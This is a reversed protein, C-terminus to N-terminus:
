RWARCVDEAVEGLVRELDDSLSGIVDDVGSDAARFIPARVQGTQNPSRTDTGLTGTGGCAPEAPLRTNREAAGDSFRSEDAVGTAPGSSNLWAADWVPASARNPRPAAALDAEVATGSPQGGPRETTPPAGDPGEGESDATAASNLLNVVKLADMPEVRQNGDVDLFVSSDDPWALTAPVPGSGDRNLYNISALVDAASAVGDGNADYANEDNQWATPPPGAEPLQDGQILVDHGPGGYLHDNGAGGELTDDGPGGDLRDKGDDGLLHDNGEDGWIRDNGAGGLLLDDGRNGDLRDNGDGGDILDNGDGGDIRDDGGDGYLEAPVDIGADIEITDDGDGGHVVISCLRADIRSTEDIGTDRESIWLEYQGREWDVEIRDRGDSGAIVLESRSPDSPCPRLEWAAVATLISTTDKAGDEDTVELAVTYVGTRVPTFRFFAETGAAAVAGDPATATWQFAHTDARGPDQIQSEYTMSEGRLGTEPGAISVVPPANSVQVEHVAMAEGGHGDSVTVEVAYTGDDDPTFGIAPGAGAAFAAGDRAVTWQYVLVDSSDVDAASATLSIRTGEAAAAPGVIAATPPDNAGSVVVTVTAWFAGGQGDDVAYRFSDVATEGVALYEFGGHPDYAVSGDASWYVQGVTASSDVDGVTLNGNGEMDNRLVNITALTNEDTALADDGGPLSVHVTVTAWDSIGGLSDVVRYKFKDPDGPVHGHYILTQRDADLTVSGRSGQTYDYITLPLNNEGPAGNHWDSDNSLVDIPTACGL